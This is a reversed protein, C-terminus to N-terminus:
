ARPDNADGISSVAELLSCVEIRPWPRGGSSNEIAVFSDDHDGDGPGSTEDSRIERMPQCRLAVVKYQDISRKRRCFRLVEGSQRRAAKQPVIREQGFEFGARDFRFDNKM